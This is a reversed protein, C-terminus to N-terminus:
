QLTILGSFGKRRGLAGIGCIEPQIIGTSIFIFHPVIYIYKMNNFLLIIAIFGILFLECIM